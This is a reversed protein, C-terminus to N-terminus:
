SRWDTATHQTDRPLRHAPATTEPDLAAIKDGKHDNYLSCALWLKDEETLGGLAEPIYSSSM